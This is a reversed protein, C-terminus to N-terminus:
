SYFCGQVDEDWSMWIELLSVDQSMWIELIFVDWSMRMGPCGYGLVDEDWISFCGQVDEDRSMWIDLLSVDSSM